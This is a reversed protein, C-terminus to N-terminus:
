RQEKMREEEKKEDQRDRIDAIGVFISILGIFAIFIPLGGKLVLLMEKYWGLGQPLGAFITFGILVFGIILAIM